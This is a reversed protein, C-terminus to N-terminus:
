KFIKFKKVLPVRYRMQNLYQSVLRITAAEIELPTM